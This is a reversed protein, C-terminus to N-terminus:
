LYRDNSAATDGRAFLLAFEHDPPSTLCRIVKIVIFRVKYCDKNQEKMEGTKAVKISCKKIKDLLRLKNEDIQAQQEIQM